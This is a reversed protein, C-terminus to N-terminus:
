VNQLADGQQLQEIVKLMPGLVAIAIFGVIVGLAVILVPELASTLSALTAEIEGEYFDAIKQLMYDLSGSEEGVSIMHTVMPPFQRSKELPDAIRDGERIRARSELVADAIIHNGVTGAVTEMAQLIPVGSTLLTGLTRSFRALCIKHHLKGFVPIKLKIRDVVRRGFQTSVFAKWVLLFLVLGILIAWWRQTIFNSTDILIKTATPFDEYKMGLDRFLKIFEPVVFVVLAIVIALAFIIVLVPYTVASKIKRRLEVDKELFHSLRQLSEELVGGVEGARVLGIFLNSFTRPHRQMARSLSEGGEVREGIDAIIRRLKADSTQQGLVDLCRVLSVGADVMTSFQRCFLSLNTLKVKGTSRARTRRTRLMEVELISFGQEEFRKRLLEESDAEATGKQIAGSADRFTYSFVPM